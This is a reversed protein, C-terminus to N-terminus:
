NINFLQRYINLLQQKLAECNDFEVYSRREEDNEYDYKIRKVRITNSLEHLSVSYENDTHLAKREIPYVTIDVQNHSEYSCGFLLGGQQFTATYEGIYNSNWKNEIRKM